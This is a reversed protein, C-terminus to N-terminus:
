SFCCYGTTCHTFVSVIIISVLGSVVQVCMFLHIFMFFFAFWVILFFSYCVCLLFLTTKIKNPREAACVFQDSISCYFSFSSSGRRLLFFCIKYFTCVVVVWVCDCSHFIFIASFLYSSQCLKYMLFPFVPYENVVVINEIHFLFVFLCSFLFVFSFVSFKALVSFVCFIVWLCLLLLGHTRLWDGSKWYCSKRNKYM